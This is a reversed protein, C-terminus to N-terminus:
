GAKSRFEGEATETDHTLNPNEHPEACDESVAGNEKPWNSMNMTMKSRASAM